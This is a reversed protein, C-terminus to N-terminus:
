THRNKRLRRLRFVSQVVGTVAVMFLFIAGAQFPPMWFIVLLLGTSLTFSTASLWLTTSSSPSRLSLGGGILLCGLAAFVMLIVTRYPFGKLWYLIGYGVLALGGITLWISAASRVRKGIGAVERPGYCPRGM